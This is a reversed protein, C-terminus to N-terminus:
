ELVPLFPQPSPKVSYPRGKELPSTMVTVSSMSAGDTDNAMLPSSWPTAYPGCLPKAMVGDVGPPGSVRQLTM